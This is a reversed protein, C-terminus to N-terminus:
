RYPPAFTLTQPSFIAKEVSKEGAVRLAQGKCERLCVIAKSRRTSQQINRHFQTLSEPTFQTLSEPTFQTLSEPTFHTLSEPTFHTLSEPTFHTLSEPTFHTLKCHFSHM